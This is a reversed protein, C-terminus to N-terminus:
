SLRWPGAAKAVDVLGLATQTVGSPFPVAPQAPDVRAEFDTFTTGKKFVRSDLPLEWTITPGSVTATVLDQTEEGCSSTIWGNLHTVAEYPTGPSFSFSLDGCTVHADVEYNFTAAQKLVDGALTMSVKLTRSKAPGTSSFLVSVIDQSKTGVADGVPDVVQPKPAAAQAHGTGLLLAPALLVLALRRM